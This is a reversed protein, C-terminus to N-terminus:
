FAFTAGVQLVRPPLIATIAGYSPGSVYGVATPVNSNLANFLDLRVDFRRQNGLSFRKSARLNLVNQTPTRESRFLM